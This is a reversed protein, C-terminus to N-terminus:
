KFSIPKTIDKLFTDYEKTFEEWQAKWFGSENSKTEAEAASPRLKLSEDTGFTVPQTWFGVFNNVDLKFLEWENKWFEGM